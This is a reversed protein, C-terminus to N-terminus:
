LTHATSISYGQFDDYYDGAHKLRVLWIGRRVRSARKILRCYKQKIKKCLIRSHEM